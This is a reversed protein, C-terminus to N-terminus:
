QGEEISPANRLHQRAQKPSMGYKLQLTARAEPGALARPDDGIRFRNKVKFIRPTNNMRVENRGTDPEDGARTIENPPTM